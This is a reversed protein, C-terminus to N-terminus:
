RLFSSSVSLFASLRNPTALGDEKRLTKKKGREQADERSAVSAFRADGRTGVQQLIPRHRVRDVAGAESLGQFCVHFGSGTSFAPVGEGARHLHAPDEEDQ